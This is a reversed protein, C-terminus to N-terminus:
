IKFPKCILKKNEPDIIELFEKEDKMVKIISKKPPM